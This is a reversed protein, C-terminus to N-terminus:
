SLFLSILYFYGFSLIIFILTTMYILKIMKNLDACTFEKTKDGLYSRFNAQGGYYNLGGFQLGLAGAAAAEPYGANPSPHKAADRGIIKLAAQYNYNLLFAAIIFLGGTLRAPLYNALDDLYAALRGFNLYRKNKYAIMSDLTNIAKYALALPIGGIIYFFLPAIIGDSTNEALSEIAARLIDAQDSQSCDRGVIKNVEHRALNLNDKKLAQGVRQGAKILGRVAIVSQLFYIRIIVFLIFNFTASFKLLFSVACYSSSVVILTLLGGAIKESFATKTFKRLLKELNTILYGMGVVPHPLWVPDAILFDILIAVILLYFKMM